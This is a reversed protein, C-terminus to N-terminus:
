LNLQDTRPTMYVNPPDYLFQELPRVFFWSKLILFGQESEAPSELLRKDARRCRKAPLPAAGEASGGKTGTHNPALKARELGCLFGDTAAGCACLWQSKGESNPSGQALLGPSELCIAWGSKKKTHSM